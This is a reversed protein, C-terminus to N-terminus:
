IRDGYPLSRMYNEMFDFDPKGKATAPLMLELYPLTINAQRGYSYRYKNAKLVTVCFLKALKSMPQLPILLYLDRGSYFPEEQLFTSLVSGGGACTIIGAPQPVKGEVPKVRASVGNNSETRAVFNIADPDGDEAEICTNLEMNIGYKVEFLENVKFPKWSEVGLTHSGYGGQNATTLPKHNLSKIYQEMFDWDPLGVATAPLKIIMRAIESSYVARGYSYKFQEKKIINCIFLGIHLNFKFKPYLINVRGHSVAYFDKNQYFANCFMDVTICNAKFIQAKGDGKEDIYSVIGNNTSGSSILPINGPECDDIKLDGSSLFVDFYDGITFEKWNEVNLKM